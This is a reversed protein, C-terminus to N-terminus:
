AGAFSPHVGTLTESVQWLRRAVDGDRAAKTSNVRAPHGKMGGLGGPGYYDGGLVDPMTAAYLQPLAGMADSQALLKEGLRTVPGLLSSRGPGSAVLNTASYGPHAAVAVLPSGAETARRQLELTFLLNALKSQGYALWANYRREGTLDDFRIRGIRHADSSVTVVRPARAALLLPLVRGTLAFHGLHNTGFQSEFGDVTLARPVAMIGANNVLVDLVPAREALDAAAQEVSGLSALDMPVVEPAPGSAAAAVDALAAAARGADRCGLLVRAGAGALAISMQKGLGSNAGTVLITRGTQDPLRDASWRHATPPRSM